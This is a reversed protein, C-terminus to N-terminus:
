TFFGRFGLYSAWLYLNLIGYIWSFLGRFGLSSAWLDLLLLGELLTFLVRLKAM